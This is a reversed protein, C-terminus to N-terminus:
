LIPKFDTRKLVINMDDSVDKEQPQSGSNFDPQVTYSEFSRNRYNCRTTMDFMGVSTFRIFSSVRGSIVDIEDQSFSKMNIVAILSKGSCMLINNFSALDDIFKNSIGKAGAADKGTASLLSTLSDIILCKDDGMMFDIVTNALQEVTTLSCLVPEFCQVVKIGGYRALMDVFTSKGVGSGGAIINLGLCIPISFDSINVIKNVPVSGNVFEVLAERGKLEIGTDTYFVNKVYESVDLMNNSNGGLSVRLQGLEMVEPLLFKYEQKTQNIYGYQIDQSVFLSSDIRM